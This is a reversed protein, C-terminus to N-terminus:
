IFNLKIFFLKIIDKEFYWLPKQHNKWIRYTVFAWVINMLLVCPINIAKFLSLCEFSVVIQAFIIIPLYLLGSPSNKEALMSTILYSSTFVLIFSILFLFAGLIIM